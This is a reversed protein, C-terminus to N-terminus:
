RTEETSIQAELTVHVPDGKIGHFCIVGVWRVRHGNGLKDPSAATDKKAFREIM